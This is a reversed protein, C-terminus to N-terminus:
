LWLNMAIEGATSSEKEEEVRFIKKGTHYRPGLRKKEKRRGPSIKEKASV